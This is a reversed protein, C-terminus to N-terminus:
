ITITLKCWICIVYTIQVMELLLCNSSYNVGFNLGIKIEIVCANVFYLISLYLKHSTLLM